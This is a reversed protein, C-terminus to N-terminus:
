VEFYSQNCEIAPEIKLYIQLEKVTCEHYGISLGFYENVKKLFTSCDSCIWAGPSRTLIVASKFSVPPANKSLDVLKQHTDRRKKSRM